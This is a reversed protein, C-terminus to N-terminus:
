RRITRSMLLYCGGSVVIGVVWALDGGGLLAAAPGQFFGFNVFFMEAIVALVFSVIGATNYTGYVGKPNFIDDIKYKGQRVFYFDVLNIASWPILLILIVSLAASFVSKFAWAYLLAIGLCLVSFPILASLRTKVTPKIPTPRRQLSTVVGIGTNGGAY